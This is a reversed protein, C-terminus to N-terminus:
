SRKAVKSALKVVSSVVLSVLSALILLYGVGLPSKRSILIESYHNLQLVKEGKRHIGNCMKSNRLKLPDFTLDKKVSFSKELRVRNELDKVQMLLNIDGGQRKVTIMGFNFDM